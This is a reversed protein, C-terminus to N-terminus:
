RISRSKVLNSCSHSLIRPRKLALFHLVAQIRHLNARYLLRKARIHRGVFVPLRGDRAHIVVRPVAVHNGPREFLGRILFLETQAGIAGSARLRRHKNLQFLLVLANYILPADRYTLRRGLKEHHAHRISPRNATMRQGVLRKFGLRM